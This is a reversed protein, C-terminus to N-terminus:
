QRLDPLGMVIRRDRLCGAYLGNRPHPRCAGAQFYVQPLQKESLRVGNFMTEIWRRGVKDSVVEAAMKLPTISRLVAMAKGDEAWQFAEPAIGYGPALPRLWKCERCILTKESLTKGEGGCSGCIKIQNPLPQPQVPQQNFVPVPPQPQFTQIPPQHNNQVPQNQVPQNLSSPVFGPPQVPQNSLPIGCYICFRANTNPQQHGNRCIVQNINQEAM